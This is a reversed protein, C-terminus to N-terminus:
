FRHGDIGAFRGQVSFGALGHPDPEALCMPPRILGHRHAKETNEVLGIRSAFGKDIPHAKSCSM